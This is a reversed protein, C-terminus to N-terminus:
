SNLKKASFFDKESEIKDDHNLKQIKRIWQSVKESIKHYRKQFKRIRQLCSNIFLQTKIKRVHDLRTQQLFFHNPM